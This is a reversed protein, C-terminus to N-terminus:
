QENEGDAYAKKGANFKEEAKRLRTELETLRLMSQTTPTLNPPDKSYLAPPTDLTDRPISAAAEEMNVVPAQPLFSNRIPQSFSGTHASCGNLLLVLSLPTAAQAVRHLLTMRRRILKNIRFDQLRIVKCRDLPM